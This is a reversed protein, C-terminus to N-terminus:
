HGAIGFMAHYKEPLRTRQMERSVFIHRTSGTALVRDGDAV